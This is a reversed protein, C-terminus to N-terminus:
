ANFYKADPHHCIIASTSQEPDIQWNQGKRHGCRQEAAQQKPRNRGQAIGARPYAGPQAFAPFAYLVFVLLISPLFKFSM